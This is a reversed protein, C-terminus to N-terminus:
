KDLKVARYFRQPQPACDKGCEFVFPSSPLSEFLTVENWNKASLSDAAEIRVKSGAPFEVILVPFQPLHDTAAGAAVATTAASSTVGTKPKATLARLENTDTSSKSSTSKALTTATPAPANDLSQYRRMRLTLTIKESAPANTKIRYLPNEWIQEWGEKYCFFVFCSSDHRPYRVTGKGEADAYLPNMVTTSLSGAISACPNVLAGPLPHGYEDVVRVTLAADFDREPRDLPVPTTVPRNPDANVVTAATLNYSAVRGNSRFDITNVVKTPFPNSLRTKSIRTTSKYEPVGPGRWVVKTDPDNYIEREETQMRQWDRVQVGYAIPFEQRTGDVYNFQVTAIVEGERDTWETAHLLHLEDFTRGVKVGIMDPFSERGKHRATALGFSYLHTRGDVQFPIGDFTQRGAVSILEMNTRTDTIYREWYWPSIDLMTAGPVINNTDSSSQQASTEGRVVSSMFVVSLLGLLHWKM